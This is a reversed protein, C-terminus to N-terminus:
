TSEPATARTGADEAVTSTESGRASGAPKMPSQYPRHVHLPCLIVNCQAVETRDWGSCDLCKAKIATRPSANGVFARQVIGRASAPVTALFAARAAAKM